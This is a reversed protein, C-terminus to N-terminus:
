FGQDLESLIQCPQNRRSSSGEHLYSMYGLHASRDELKFVDVDVSLSHTQAQQLIQSILLVNTHSTYILESEVEARVVSELSDLM